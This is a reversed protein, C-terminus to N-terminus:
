WVIYSQCQWFKGCNQHSLRVFVLCCVSIYIVVRWVAETIPSPWHYIFVPLFSFVCRVMRFLDCSNDAFPSSMPVIFRLFYRYYKLVDLCAWLLVLSSALFQAREKQTYDSLSFSVVFCLLFPFVLCSSLCLLASVSVCPCFSLLQAFPYFWPCFPYFPLCVRRLGRIRRVVWACLLGVLWAFCGFLVFGCLCWLGRWFARLIRFLPMNALLAGFVFRCLPCFASRGASDQGIKSVGAFYCSNGSWRGGTPVGFPLCAVVDGGTKRGGSKFIYKSKAGKPIAFCRSFM